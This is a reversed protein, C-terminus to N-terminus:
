KSIYLFRELDTNEDFGYILIKYEGEPFANLFEALEGISVWDPVYIEKRKENVRM